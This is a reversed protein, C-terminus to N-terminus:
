YTISHMYFENTGDWGFSYKNGILRGGYHEVSSVEFYEIVEISNPGLPGAYIVQGGRKM